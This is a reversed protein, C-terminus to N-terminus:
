AANPIFRSIDSAVAEPREWNPCHGTDTYLKFRASPLAAMFRDQDERPFLGDHDGWLLLVPAQITPLRPTDDYDLLSDILVRWLRPPLKLSEALAGDFFEQPVPHHITSAQFDRAFEYPIPDPLDRLSQQLERTVANSTSFGTGILVLAAVREPHALAAQRAVFSGYSHGVVTAREIDLADLLAIADAALNRIAYGSEPRDSDGFGRQDFAVAHFTSPLLPLLRSYSFWSDPWGHLFLVPEGNPDGSRVCKLRPGTSVHLNSVHVDVAMASNHILPLAM